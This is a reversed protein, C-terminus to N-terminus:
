LGRLRDCKFLPGGGASERRNPDVEMSSYSAISELDDMMDVIAVERDMEWHDCDYEKLPPISM